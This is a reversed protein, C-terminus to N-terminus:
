PASQSRVFLDLVATFPVITTLSVFLNLVKTLPVSQDGKRTLKKCLSRFKNDLTNVTKKKLSSILCSINMCKMFPVSDLLHVPGGGVCVCVCM